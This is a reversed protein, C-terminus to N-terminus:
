ASNPKGPQAGYYERYVLLAGRPLVRGDDLEQDDQVVAAWLVAFPRASGWDLARIRTWHPPISFPEIVHRARSWESFFQGELGADWDGDIWM